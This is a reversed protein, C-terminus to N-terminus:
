DQNITLLYEQPSKGVVDKFSTFFPNYSTFGVFKSLSELTNAALYGDEMLDLADQIRAIKRFDKFSIKSHYKFLYHLHSKPIKLEKSFEKLSFETSRFCKNKLILADIKLIYNEINPNIKEKLQQDQITTLAIKSQVVWQSINKHKSQKKSSKSVLYSYGYLIEPSSLIKIFLLVWMISGIWIGYFGFLKLDSNMEFFVSVFTRIFILTKAIYLYITWKRILENQKVAIQLTAKKNWVFNKLKIIIVIDYILYYILFFVYMYVFKFECNCIKQIFSYKIIIIFFIPPLYHILDKLVFAHQNKILNKFYLYFIPVFFIFLINYCAIIDELMKNKSIGAISILMFRSSACLIILSLNFNVIKNSKENSLIIILIVFGLLGTFILLLNTIM